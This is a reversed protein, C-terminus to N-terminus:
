SIEMLVTSIETFREPIICKRKRSSGPSLSIFTQVRIWSSTMGEREPVIKLENVL